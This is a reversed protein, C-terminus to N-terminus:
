LKHSIDYIDEIVEELADEKKIIFILGKKGEITSSDWVFEDKTPSAEERLYTLVYKMNLPDFEVHVELAPYKGSAKWYFQGGTGSKGAGIIDVLQSNIFFRVSEDSLVIKEPILYEEPVPKDEAICAQQMRMCQEIYDRITDVPCSESNIEKTM